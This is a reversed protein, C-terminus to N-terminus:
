QAGAGQRRRDACGERGSRGSKKERNLSRGDSTIRRGQAPDVALDVKRGTQLVSAPSVRERRRPAVVSPEGLWGTKCGASPATLAVVPFSRRVHIARRVPAPAFHAVAHADLPVHRKDHVVAEHQAGVHEAREAVLGAGGDEGVAGVALAEGELVAVLRRPFNERAVIGVGKGAGGVEVLGPLHRVRLFPHRVAVGAHADVAAAGAARGAEEGDVARALRGVEVVADLEDCGKGPAGALDAHAADGIEGGVLPPDGRQVRRAEGGDADPLAIGVVVAVGGVVAADQADEALVPLLHLHLGHLVPKAFAPGHAADGALEDAPRLRQRLLLERAVAGVHGAVDELVREVAVVVAGGVAVERLDGHRQERGSFQPPWPRCRRPLM